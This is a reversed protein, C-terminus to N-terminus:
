GLVVLLKLVGRWRSYQQLPEAIKAPIAGYPGALGRADSSHFTPPSGLYFIETVGKTPNSLDIWKADVEM